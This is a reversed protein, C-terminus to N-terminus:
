ATEAEPNFHLYLPHLVKFREVFGAESGTSSEILMRMLPVFEPAFQTRHAAIAQWKREWFEGAPIETNPRATGYFAVMPQNMDPGPAGPVHPFGMFSVAEAVCLGVDRHDPHSEYALWPDCTLVFDPAFEAIQQLMRERLGDKARDLLDHYGIHVSEQVGLMEAAADAEGRRIEALREPALSRDTTGMSGDTVTVYRIVAGQAALRAVLAGAGIENDDPHPQVALLRRATLLNPRPLLESM